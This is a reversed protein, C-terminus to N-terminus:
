SWRLQATLCELLGEVEDDAVGDLMAIAKTLNLCGETPNNKIVYVLADQLTLKISAYRVRYAWYALVARLSLKEEVTLHELAVGFCKVFEDIKNTQTYYTVCKAMYFPQYHYQLSRLAM